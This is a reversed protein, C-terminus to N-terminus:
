PSEDAPKCADWTLSAWREVRKLHLLGQEIVTHEEETYCVLGEPCGDPIEESIEGAQREPPPTKQCGTEVTTVQLTQRKPCFLGCGTVGVSSVVLVILSLKLPMSNATKM